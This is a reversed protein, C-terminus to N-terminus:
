EDAHAAVTAPVDLGLAKATKLQHRVRVPADKLSLRRMDAKGGVIVPRGIRVADKIWM